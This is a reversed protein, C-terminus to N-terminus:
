THLSSSNAGGFVNMQNLKNNSGSWFVGSKERTMRWRTEVVMGNRSVNDYFAGVEYGTSSGNISMANYSVFDDNDFPVFLARVDGYSHIDVGDTAHVVVPGMWNASVNSGVAQVQVLFSNTADFTFIQRMTPHGNGTATVMVQNSSIVSYSWSAYNNGTIYGTNFGIGSYFASIIQLNQWYFAANGTSLNYQVKVNLNSMTLTNGSKTFSPQAPVSIATLCLWLLLGFRFCIGSIIRAPGPRSAPTLSLNMRLKKAKLRGRRPFRGAPMGTTIGFIKSRCERRMDTPLGLTM